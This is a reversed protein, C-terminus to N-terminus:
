RGGPTSSAATTSYRHVILSEPLDGSICCASADGLIFDFAEERQDNADSFEMREMADLPETREMPLTPEARETPETPDKRDANEIAEAPDRNLRRENPEMQDTIARREARPTIFLECRPAYLTRKSVIESRACDTVHFFWSFQLAISV